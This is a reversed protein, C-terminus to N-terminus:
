HKRRNEGTTSFGKSNDAPNKQKDSYGTLSDPNFVSQLQNEMGKGQKKLIKRLLEKFEDMDKPQERNALSFLEKLVSYEIKDRLTNILSPSNLLNTRIRDENVEMAPFFKDSLTRYCETLSEFLSQFSRAMFPLFPNLQLQGENAYTHIKDAEYEGDMALGKIYELLVPNSKLPMITSGFQLDPHGLEGLFSSTYLLLDNSLKKINGAAIKFGMATEALSDKNAVEDTLNQSRCLPLGTITRLYKEALFVFKRPASYCTGIATGGLPINRLREKLKHLRWRDREVPGTWAAFIQGLTIPLADQLETRGTMIISQHKMEKEVLVEQLRIVEEELLLLYRYVMITLATPFTDNTSQYLALHDLPHVGKWSGTYRDNSIKAIVENINMHLSTGAGGQRLDLPFQSNHKGDIIEEIVSTLVPFFDEPYVSAYDQMAMTTALKVEGFARILEGPMATKYFGSEQFSNIGFNKLAKDTEKGWFITGEKAM